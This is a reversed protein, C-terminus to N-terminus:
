YNTPHIFFYPKPHACVPCMELAKKGFHLHGCKKCEWVSDEDKEFVQANRVNELLKLYRNEHENEIKAVSRFLFALKKFGEEEADDAFNQYMETWEYHEGAAADILNVETTPIGDHLQEFWLKAHQKENNATIEFLDAIQQYGEKRAKSAYYTYKNRAQSEGSFADQLNKETKTGKYNM